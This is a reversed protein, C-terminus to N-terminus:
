QVHAFPCDPLDALSIRLRYKSYSYGVYIFIAFLYAAYNNM